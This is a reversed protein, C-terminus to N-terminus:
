KEELFTNTIVEIGALEGASELITANYKNLITKKNTNVGSKSM